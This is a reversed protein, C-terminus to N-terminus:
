CLSRSVTSILEPLGFGSIGALVYPLVCTVLYLKVEFHEWIIERQTAFMNQQNQSWKETAVNKVNTAM